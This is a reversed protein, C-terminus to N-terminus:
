SYFSVKSYVSASFICLQSILSFMNIILTVAFVFVNTGIDFFLCVYLEFLIQPVYSAFVAMIYKRWYHNYYCLDSNVANLEELLRHVRYLDGMVRSM